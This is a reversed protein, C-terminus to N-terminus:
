CSRSFFGTSTNFLLILNLWGQKIAELEKNKADRRAQMEARRKELDSIPKEAPEPQALQATTETSEAM